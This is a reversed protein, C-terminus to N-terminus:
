QFDIAQGSGLENQDFSFDLDELLKQESKPCTALLEDPFQVPPPCDVTFEVQGEEDQRDFTWVGTSRDCVYPTVLSKGDDNVTGNSCLGVMVLGEKLHVRVIKAVNREVCETRCEGVSGANVFVASVVALLLALLM